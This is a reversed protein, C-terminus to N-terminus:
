SDRLIYLLTLTGSGSSVNYLTDWYFHGGGLIELVAPQSKFYFQPLSVIFIGFISFIIDKNATVTGNFHCWCWCSELMLISFVHFCSSFFSTITIRYSVTYKVHLLFSVPLWSLGGCPVFLFNFHSVFFLFFRHAHYTRDLGMTM